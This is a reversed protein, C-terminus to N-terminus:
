ECTVRQVRFGKTEVEHRHEAAREQDLWGLTSQERRRTEVSVGPLETTWCRLLQQEDGRELEQGCKYVKAFFPRGSRM